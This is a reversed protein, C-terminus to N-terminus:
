PISASPLPFGGYLHRGSILWDCIAFHALDPRSRLLLNLFCFNIQSSDERPLFMPLQYLTIRALQRMKLAQCSHLSDLLSGQQDKMRRFYFHIKQKKSLWFCSHFSAKSLLSFYGKSWGIHQWLREAWPHQQLCSKCQAQQRVTWACTVIFEVQSLDVGMILCGNKCQSWGLGEGRTGM